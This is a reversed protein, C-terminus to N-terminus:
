GDFPDKKVMVIFHVETRSCASSLEDEPRNCEPCIKSPAMM